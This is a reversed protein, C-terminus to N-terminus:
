IKKSALTDLLDLVEKVSELQFRAASDKEGVNISYAREPLARFMDEDTYDDGIALIFDWTQTSLLETVIVGKHMNKPKVEVIKSGEFVGIASTKLKNKLETKLEQSRVYALDPAVRSFHWAFSFDKEEVESGPTRTTYQQLIPRVMAKWKKSAFSSRVWGGAGLIWGGHEAILGLGIDEFFHDLVNKPRGSVIVVQNKKDVVLRKLVARVKRSPRALSAKPSVVFDKLTGDYDLLILRSGARGYDKVLLAKDGPAMVKGSLGYQSKTNKLQTLFDDAWKEITYESIRKQMARMRERQEKEPMELAQKIAQAVTKGNNPNVQVAEPLEFAAGAMESLVLVGGQKHKTAVFEKAVLNMGDRLPTVLMVDAMSYLAVLEDFPLSQHRYTIPAWDVTSFEGNIRGVKQEITLRLEQYEEVDGRSPIALLIMVVKGLYQPNNELFIQYADLRAPIGKSYDTRDVTLIVKASQSLLNFSNIIKKVKRKNSSKAFKRYNIGIPFGDVSIARDDMRIVGLSNEYGLIRRVSSLFHRAYDYTHFGVLDAGLLGRLVEEREPLLRFIEYSPFPTHLFFGISVNAHGARLLEPLLMLQYDHVWVRADNTLFRKTANYFLQNVAKYQRWYDASYRAKNPFYHFLPWLTANCYGSYYDDIQAQTLFVPFCNRKQLEEVIESKEKATLEDSTIGPWGIWVSSNPKSVSSMGTALGGESPLYTLKGDVRRVTYSLRNSVIVLKPDAM